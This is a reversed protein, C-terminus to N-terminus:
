GILFMTNDITAIMLWIVLGWAAISALFGLLVPDDDPM